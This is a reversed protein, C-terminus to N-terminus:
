KGGSHAHAPILLGTTTKKEKERAGTKEECLKLRKM